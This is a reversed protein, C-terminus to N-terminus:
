QALKRIKEHDIFDSHKKWVSRLKLHYARAFRHAEDRINQLLHLEGSYEPLVVPESRQCSYVIEEGKALAIVPIDIHLSTLENMVENLQGKGGDILILDPKEKMEPDTFRRRLVERLMGCDDIGKITKIRFKRYGDKFPVGGKFVVRSGTAHTGSIHSIDYGEITAPIKKLGLKSALLPLINEKRYLLLEGESRWPLHKEMKELMQIRENLIRAEEFNWSKIATNLQKKLRSCYNKYRGSFFARIGDIVKRYEEESIKGACPACCRKTHFAVCPRTNKGHIIKKKCTRVPYFKRVFRLVHKLAKVDTFPGFYEDVASKPERVVLVSPFNESTIKIYPYTKGDKLDVNYKPQYKKILSCELLLAEGESVVPIVEIDAIEDALSMKRYDLPVSFYSRVRSRLHKAKGVYIVNKKRDKFVYVGPSDPIKQIKETLSNKTM